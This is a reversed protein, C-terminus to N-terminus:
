QLTLGWASLVQSASGAAGLWKGLFTARDRCYKMEPSVLDPSVRKFTYKPAILLGNENIALTGRQLAFLLSERTFPALQQVRTSFGIRLEQHEQFWIHFKSITTKPLAERTAKHLVIPLVMFALPFDMGGSSSTNAYELVTGRLLLACFAPNLLNAVEVPREQWAIM